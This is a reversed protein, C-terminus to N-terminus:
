SAQPHPIIRFYRARKQVADIDLHFYRFHFKPVDYGPGLSLARCLDSVPDDSCSFNLEASELFVSKRTVCLHFVSIHLLVTLYVILPLFQQLHSHISQIETRSSVCPRELHRSRDRVQLPFFGDTRDVERFGYLVPHHVLIKQPRSFIRSM